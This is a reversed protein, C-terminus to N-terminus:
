WTLFSMVRNERNRRYLAKYSENYIWLIAGAV